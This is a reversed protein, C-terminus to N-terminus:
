CLNALVTKNARLLRCQRMQADHHLMSLPLREFYKVGQLVTCQRGWSQQMVATIPVSAGPNATMWFCAALSAIGSVQSVFLDQLVAVPDGCCMIRTM